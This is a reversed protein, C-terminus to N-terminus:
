NKVNRNYANKESKRGTKKQGRPPTTQNDVSQIGRFFREKFFVGATIEMGQAPITEGKSHDKKLRRSSYVGLDV